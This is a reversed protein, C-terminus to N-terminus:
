PCTTQGGRPLTKSINNGLDDYQYCTVLGSGNYDAIMKNMAYQRSSSYGFVNITSTAANIRTAKSTLLYVSSGDQAPFSSYTNTIQPCTGGSVVCNGNVDLGSLQVELGGSTASWSYNTRYQNGNIVYLPKNCTRITAATCSTPFSASQTISSAPASPKAALTSSLVNGRDDYGVTVSNGEPYQIGTLREYQDYTSATVGASPDTVQSLLWPSSRDPTQSGPDLIKYSFSGGLANTAIHTLGTSTSGTWSYTTAFGLSDTKKTVVPNNPGQGYGWPPPAWEVIFEPSNPYSAQFSSRLIGYTPDYTYSRLLGAANVGRLLSNASQYQYSASSLVTGSCSEPSSPCTTKIGYVNSVTLRSKNTISTTGEDVYMFKFGYGFSNTVWKLRTVPLSGNAYLSGAPGYSFYTKAGNAQEIKSAYACNTVYSCVLNEPFTIVDGDRSTFTLVASSGAGSVTLTSGDGKLNVYVGPTPASNIFNVYGSSFSHTEQGVVVDVDRFTGGSPDIPNIAYVKYNHEWQDFSGWGTGSTSSSRYTRSIEMKNPSNDQGLTLDTQSLVLSGSIMDVGNEIIEQVPAQLGTNVQASARGSLSFLGILAFQSLLLRAKMTNM